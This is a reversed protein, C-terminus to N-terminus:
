PSRNRKGRLLAAVLAPMAVAPLLHRTELRTGADLLGLTLDVGDVRGVEIAKGVQFLDDDVDAKVRADLAKMGVEHFVRARGQVQEPAAHERHEDDAAHVDGVEHRYAGAPPRSFQRRPM